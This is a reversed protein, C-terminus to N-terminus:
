NIDSKPEVVPEPEVVEAVFTADPDRTLVLERYIAQLIGLHSEAVIHESM